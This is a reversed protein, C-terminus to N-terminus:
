NVQKLWNKLIPHEEKAKANSLIGKINELIKKSENLEAQQTIAESSNNVNEKVEKELVNVRNQYLEELQILSELAGMRMWWIEGNLAINEIITVGEKVTKNNQRKLFETYTKVFSFKSYSQIRDNLEVFFSQYKEDGYTAFVSACALVLNDNEDSKFKEAYQMAKDGDIEAIIELSATQVEYSQDNITNELISVIEKENKDKYIGFLAYLADSRVSSKRDNLAIDKLKNFVKENFIKAANKISRIATSRIKWNKDSLAELIIAVDLSDTSQSLGNIAEYRDMFLPANRYMFRWEENSHVDTKTCLLMKEADFNVLDPKQSVKISINEYAEKIWIRKRSVIGNEYVDIDVPLKYLPTTEFNQAQVVHLVVTKDEENYEYEIGLDPHGSNYFWQNFFWNLDEGTVEEFALRLEHMEVDTFKNDELYKKLSTFFADDGVYKRLMHLIRGGKQYSHGDFMEEKDDYDFRIMDVQKNKAERLYSRLDNDLTIDAEERGHKYEFWLYEGYTAFSENLPLNSWSECTVLDGFWHHFLEHAIIDENNGDIMERSTQHLFEGHIVATTNEMAGSVYDRVVVQDYKPWPYDVGLKTSYFEIMEPTLGFIEKAYPEYEHEVFYNVPKDRWTDKVMAFDGVAMMFLYPAHPQNMEWFDTRTGDGNLESHTLEGNSITLFNDKVTIEMEQTCRQNPSDITPFWCSNAETEGQTWIQQPKNPTKGDPNIFYLGKDSNIAASGGAIRENPKATYKIYIKLTDNRTYTKDLKIDLQKNDYDFSLSLNKNLLEIKDIDFGKADLVLNSQPYFWPKLTLEAEGYLYTKEWDFKVKLKTHILDFKKTKSAQYVPQVPYNFIDMTDLVVTNEKNYQSTKTTNCSWFVLLAGLLYILSKKM